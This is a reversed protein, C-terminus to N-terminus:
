EESKYVSKSKVDSVDTKNGVNDSSLSDSKGNDSKKLKKISNSMVDFFKLKVELNKVVLRKLM